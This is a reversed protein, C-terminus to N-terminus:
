NKCLANLWKKLEQAQFHAKPIQQQFATKGIFIAEGDLGGLTVPFQVRLSMAMRADANAIKGLKLKEM